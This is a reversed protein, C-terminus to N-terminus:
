CKMYEFVNVTCKDIHFGSIMLYIVSSDKVLYQLIAKIISVGRLNDWNTLDIVSM